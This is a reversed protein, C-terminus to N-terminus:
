PIRNLRCTTKDPNQLFGTNRKSVHWNPMAPVNPLLSQVVGPDANFSVQGLLDMVWVRHGNSLNSLQDRFHFCGVGFGPLFVLPPGETGATEYYVHWRDRWEWTHGQIRTEKKDSQAMQGEHAPISEVSTSRAHISTRQNRHLCHCNSPVAEFLEKRFNFQFPTSSSPFRPARGLLRPHYLAPPAKVSAACKLPLGRGKVAHLFETGSSRLAGSCKTAPTMSAAARMQKQM